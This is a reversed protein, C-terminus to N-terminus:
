ALRKRVLLAGFENAAIRALATDIPEYAVAMHFANAHILTESDVALAVHGKWFFLDGRRPSANEPLMEGLAECQLDSDGPCPIQAAFLAAQILGSCDIGASSNGGWLYPTGLLVKAAEVPDAPPSGLPVLHGHHVFHGMDTECWTGTRDTVTVLSGHSLWGSEPSKLDPAPYLHTARAAVRHTAHADPALATEPIYGVYSDRESQLFAMGENIDLVRVRQGHLLQRDRKGGPTCLLDVVPPSVRHWSGDTVRRAAHSDSLESAVVRANAPLLRRDTM